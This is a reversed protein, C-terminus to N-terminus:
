DIGEASAFGSDTLALDGRFEGNELDSQCIEVPNDGFEFASEGRIAEGFDELFPVAIRGLRGEAWSSLLDALVVM